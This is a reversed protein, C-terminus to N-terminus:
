RSLTFTQQPCGPADSVYGASSLAEIMRKGWTGCNILNLSIEPCGEAIASKLENLMNPGKAM